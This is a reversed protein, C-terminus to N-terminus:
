VNTNGNDIIINDNDNEKRREDLITIMFKIIKDRDEANFRTFFRLFQSTHYDLTAKSLNKFYANLGKWIDLAEKVMELQGEFRKKNFENMNFIKSASDKLFLTIDNWMDLPKEIGTPVTLMQGNNINM